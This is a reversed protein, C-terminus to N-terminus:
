PKVGLRKLIEVAEKSNLEVARRLSAIAKSTDGVALHSQGLGSYSTFSNPYEEVTLRFVHLADQPQKNFLLWFGVSNLQGVDIFYVEASDRMLARYKAVVAAGGQTQALPQLVNIAGPKTAIEYHLRLYYLGRDVAHATTNHLDFLRGVSGAPLDVVWKTASERSITASSTGAGNVLNRGAHCHGFPQPGMQLLHFKDDIFLWVNMQAATVTQGVPIGNLNQSTNDLTRWQTHLGFWQPVRYDGVTIMGLPVGGGNPVPHSLNVVLTRPSQLSVGAAIGIYSGLVGDTGPAYPGRGDSSFSRQIFLSAAM